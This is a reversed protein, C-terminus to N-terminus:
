RLLGLGDYTGRESSYINFALEMGSKQHAKCKKKEIM